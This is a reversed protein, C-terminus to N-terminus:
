RGPLGCLTCSPVFPAAALVLDERAARGMKRQPELTGGFARRGPRASTKVDRPSTPVPAPARSRSALHRPLFGEGLNLCQYRTRTVRHHLTIPHQALPVRSPTLDFRSRGYPPSAAQRGRFETSSPPPTPRYTLSSLLPPPFCSTISRLPAAGPPSSFMGASRELAM